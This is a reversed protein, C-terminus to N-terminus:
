VAEKTTKKTRKPKRKKLEKTYTKLWADILKQDPKKDYAGYWQRISENKIEVTIYPIDEEKIKRLFLIFSQGNNHSRLYSDGGVCHHLIRGETVIEAADHAPRILYGGATAAYRNSLSRYKKKINPYKALVEKKRADMRANEMELVMEDHRRKINKPFLIIDNTMDYGQDERMHLYDYYFNRIQRSKYEGSYDEQPYIKQKIFYNRLKVPTTYKLAIKFKYDGVRGGLIRIIELEEDTWHAGNAREFQFEKITRIDGAAEILDKIRDKNIRLRDEITKGRPNPNVPIKIVLGYAYKTLGMKLIMEFDPYRAAAIYYDIVWCDDYFNNVISQEVPVYKFMGTRKIQRYTEPHTIYGWNEGATDILWRKDSTCYYQSYRVPKKGKQLYIRKVEWCRYNTKLDKSIMQESFFIRFVFSEDDIKQGTCIRHYHYEDKCCGAPKYIAQTKCNQCKTKKDRVPKEIFQAVDIFPDETPIARITYRADCESCHCLAYAGTRRYYIYHTSYQKRAWEDINKVPKLDRNEM